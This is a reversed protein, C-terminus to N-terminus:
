GKIVQNQPVPPQSSGTTESSTSTENKPANEEDLSFICYDDQSRQRIESISNVTSQISGKTTAQADTTIIDSRKVLTKTEDTLGLAM